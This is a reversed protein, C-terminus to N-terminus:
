KKLMNEYGSEKDVKDLNDGGKIKAIMEDEKKAIEEAKVVIEELWEVPLIIVGSQDGVVIDGPRCLAGGIRVPQNPTAEMYRGRTTPITRGKCYMPFDLAMIEDVDRVVGDSVWGAIGKVSCSTAAIGGCTSMQMDGGGDVVIVSGPAAEAITNMGGHKDKPLHDTPIFRQTVAEGVIKRVGPWLPAIGYCAGTFGCVADMADSLNTTGLNYLRARLDDTLVGM